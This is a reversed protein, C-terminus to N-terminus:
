PNFNLYCKAASHCYKISAIAIKIFFLDVYMLVITNSERHLYLVSCASTASLDM